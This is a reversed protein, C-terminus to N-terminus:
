QAVVGKATLTRIGQTLRLWYIGAPVRGGDGLRAVHYGPGLGGVERSAVLRGAVDILELRAPEASPLAFSVAPEGRAPNPRLGDLALKLAPVEVWAEPSFREVGQEVYHLRYAYRTGPTVSADEVRLHGTGDASVRGLPQWDAGWARREVSASLSAADAAFWDLQVRGDRAEASVLSLLTPTPGNPGFRQAYLGLRSTVREDWAVIAGGQGDTAIRTDFQDTSPAVRLGYTPWGAAVQGTGTLHQITSPACCNGQSQWAVFGGGLGDRVVFPDYTQMADTPDSLLTGDAAWGPALTGDFLVRAAFIEGGTLDYPPRYDYWSLLAGGAGDGDIRVGARIGPPNCVLVGGAPWGAALVGDFTFRLLYYAGDFDPSPGPTRRVAFFGGADDRAVARIGQNALMVGGTPWGAALTGDANIRVAYDGPADPRGDSWEFVAGGSDDPMVSPDGQAGPLASIALGGAPWSSAVLGGATLHQAYVDYGSREDQWILYAGGKGDPAIRPYDQFGPARVLAGDVPWGPALSGNALVRQVGPDEGTPTLSRWDEWAVLAGGSGDPALGSFEQVSPDVIIPLGDPSWGPAIVGVGTVHQLFVDDSNRVDRWAVFAGGAGDTVVQPIDGPCGNLCMPVGTPAWMQQASAPAAILGAVLLAAAPVPARNM